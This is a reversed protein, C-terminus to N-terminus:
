TNQLPSSKLQVVRACVFAGSHSETSDAARAGERKEVAHSTGGKLFTLCLQDGAHAMRAPQALQVKHFAARIMWLCLPLNPQPTKVYLRPWAQPRM